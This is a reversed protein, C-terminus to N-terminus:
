FPFKLKRLLPLESHHLPGPPCIGQIGLPFHFLNLYWSLWITSTSCLGSCHCSILTYSSFGGNNQIGSSLPINLPNVFVPLLSLNVGTFSTFESIGLSTPCHYFLLKCATRFLSCAMHSFIMINWPFDNYFLYFEKFQIRSYLLRYCWPM